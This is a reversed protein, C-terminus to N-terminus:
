VSTTAKVFSLTYREDGEIFNHPNISREDRPDTCRVIKSSVVSKLLTAVCRKDWSDNVKGSYHIAAFIFDLASWDINIFYETLTQQDARFIKKFFDELTLM